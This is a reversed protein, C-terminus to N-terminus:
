LLFGRFVFVFFLVKALYARLRIIDEQKNARYMM